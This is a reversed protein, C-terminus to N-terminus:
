SAKPAKARAAQSWVVETVPGLEDACDAAFKAIRTAAEGADPREGKTIHSVELDCRTRLRLGRDLLSAIEFDALAELLATGPESLGYSRFQAHDVTFYATITEATYEVRHHPVTGYGEATAGDKAENIVGDRKVGGSVAPKVNSAEIFSTVARSIKPQWPWAKRAFFVGHVLSIPDLRFCTRAVARYDLPRGKVLGLQEELWKEGSPGNTGNVTGNMIYASALRHAELRSSSLFNKDPDIVRIYPIAALEAVQDNTAPNWTTAELWNAMSQASEVLLQNNGFESPGLDPFGTPQFLSGAVPQLEAALVSRYVTM